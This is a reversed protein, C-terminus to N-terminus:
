RTVFRVFYPLSLGVIDFFVFGVWSIELWLCLFFVLNQYQKAEIDELTADDEVDADNSFILMPILLGIFVTAFIVFYRFTWWFLRVRKTALAWRPAAAEPDRLDADENWSSASPRLMMTSTASYSADPKLNGGYDNQERTQSGSRSGHSATDRFSSSSVELLQISADQSKGVPKRSIM